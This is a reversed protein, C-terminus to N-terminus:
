TEMQYLISKPLLKQVFRVILTMKKAQPKSTAGAEMYYSCHMATMKFSDKSFYLAGNRLANVPWTDFENLGVRHLTTCSSRGRGEELFM